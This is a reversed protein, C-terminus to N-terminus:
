FKFDTLKLAKLSDEYLQNAIKENKADDAVDGKECDSFDFSNM